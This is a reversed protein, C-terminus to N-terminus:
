EKKGSIIEVTLEDGPASFPVFVTYGEIKAVGEGQHRITEISLM